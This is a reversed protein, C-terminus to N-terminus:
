SHPEADHVSINGHAIPFEFASGCANQAGSSSPQVGLRDLPAGDNDDVSIYAPGGEYFGQNTFYTGTVRTVTGHMDAHNTYTESVALCDISIKLQGGGPCGVPMTKNLHGTAATDDTASHAELSFNIPCPAAAWQGGGVAYDHQPNGSGSAPPDAAPSLGCSLGAPYLTMATVANSLQTLALPDLALSLNTGDNCSLNTTSSSTGTAAGPMLVLVLAAALMTAVVLLLRKM